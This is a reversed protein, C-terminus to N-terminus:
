SLAFDRLRHKLGSRSVLQNIKKLIDFTHVTM